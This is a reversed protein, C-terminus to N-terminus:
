TCKLFRMSSYEFYSVGEFVLLVPLGLDRARRQLEALRDRLKGVAEKCEGKCLKKTLDVLELM